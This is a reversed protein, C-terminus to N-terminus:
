EVKNRYDSLDGEKFVLNLFSDVLEPDFQKGSAQMLEERAEELSLPDRYPRASLMADFSDVLSLIRALLPIQNQSLGYPYGSGDYNERHYLVTSIVERLDVQEIIQKSHVPIEKIAEQEEESLDGSKNLIEADVEIKGLDHLFAAYKLSKIEKDSLGLTEGLTAALKGVREAHAYTYSDRNNIISILSEIEEIAQSENSGIEEKLDQFLSYYAKVDNRGQSKVEYLARDAKDVLENLSDANEPYIAVGISVTLSRKLQHEEEFKYHAISERIREAISLAKEQGTDILIISFEDGGYRAVVDHKRVNNNLIEGIQRLVKDGAPHGFTDNYTKFNDVDLMLLSLPYNYRESRNVEKELREYFYRHNYVQTVEDTYSLRELEDNAEKLDYALEEVEEKAEILKHQQQQIVRTILVTNIFIGAILLCQTWFTDTIYFNFSGYYLFLTAVYGLHSFISSLVVEKMRPRVVGVSVMLIGYAIVFLSDLGGSYTILIGVIALDVVFSFYWLCHYFLNEASSQMFHYALFHIAVLVILLSWFYIDTTQTGNLILFLGLTLIIFCWKRGYDSIDIPIQLDNDIHLALNSNNM